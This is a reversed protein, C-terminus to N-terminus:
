WANSSKIEKLIECFSHYRSQMLNGNELAERIACSPEKIHQCDTFKCETRLESIDTMANQLDDLSLHSLGFQQIGPLDIVISPFFHTNVSRSSNEDSCDNPSTKALEYEQPLPYGQASSTTQKGQGTKNSVDGTRITNNPFIKSLITSKGVGSVGSFAYVSEVESQLLEILMPIGKGELANTEIVQVGLAEYYSLNEMLIDFSSMDSKNAILVTNINQHVAACLMRDISAPNFLPPPATVIFLTHLNAALTKTKREFSRKLLNKREVISHVEAFSEESSRKTSSYLVIDGPVAELKRSALTGSIINQKRDLIDVFRRSSSIVLGEEQNDPINM